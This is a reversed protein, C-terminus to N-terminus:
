PDITKAVEIASKLTALDAKRNALKVKSSKRVAWGSKEWKEIKPILSNAYTIINSSDPNSPEAPIIGAKKKMINSASIAWERMATVALKYTQNQADIKADFVERPSTAARLAPLKNSTLDAMEANALPGPTQGSILQYANTIKAEYVDRAVNNSQRLRLTMPDDLSDKWQDHFSQGAGGGYMKFHWLNQAGIETGKIADKVDNLADRVRIQVASAADGLINLENAIKAFWENRLKPVSPITEGQDALAILHDKLEQVANIQSNYFDDLIWQQQTGRNYNELSISDDGVSAVIGAYHYGWKQKFMDKEANSMAIGKTKKDLGALWDRIQVNGPMPGGQTIVYGEGVGAKAGANIGLSADHTVKNSMGKYVNPLPKDHKGSTKDHTRLDGALGSADGPHAAAYKAIDRTPEKEGEVIAEHGAGSGFVAVRESFEGIIYKIFSNCEAVQGFKELIEPPKSDSLKAPKIMHLDLKPGGPVSPDKPAKLSGGADGLRAEAGVSELKDNSEKIINPTGYFVKPEANTDELGIAKTGDSGYKMAPIAGTYAANTQTDQWAGQGKGEKKSSKFGGAHKELTRHEFKAKAGAIKIDQTSLQSGVGFDSELPNIISYRQIVDSADSEATTNKKFQFPTTYISSNQLSRQQSNQSDSKKVNNLGETHEVEKNYNPAEQTRKQVIGNSYNHKRNTEIQSAGLLQVPPKYVNALAMDNESLVDFGSDIENIKQNQDTRNASINTANQRTSASSNSATKEKIFYSGM